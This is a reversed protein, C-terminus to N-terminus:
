PWPTLDTVAAMGAAPALVSREPDGATVDTVQTCKHNM